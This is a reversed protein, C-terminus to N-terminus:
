LTRSHNIHNATWTRGRITLPSLGVSSYRVLGERTKLHVGMKAKTYGQYSDPNHTLVSRNSFVRRKPSDLATWRVPSPNVWAIDLPYTSAAGTFDTFYAITQIDKGENLPLEIKAATLDSAITICDIAYGDAEIVVDTGVLNDMFPIPIVGGPVSSVSMDVGDLTATIVSWGDNTIVLEHRKGDNIKTRVYQAFSPSGVSYQQIGGEFYRINIGTVDEGLYTDPILRITYGDGSTTTIFTDEDNLAESDAQFCFTLSGQTIQNVPVTDLDFQGVALLVGSDEQCAVQNLVIQSPLLRTRSRVELALEDGENFYAEDSLHVTRGGLTGQGEQTLTAESQDVYSCYSWGVRYYDTIYSGDVWGIDDFTLETTGAIDNVTKFPESAYFLDGSLTDPGVGVLVMPCSPSAQSPVMWPVVAVAQDDSNITLSSPEIFGDVFVGSVERYGVSRPDLIISELLCVALEPDTAANPNFARANWLYLKSGFSEGARVPLTWKHWASQVLEGGQEFFSYVYLTSHPNMWTAFEDHDNEVAGSSVVFLTQTDANAILQSVHKDPAADKKDVEQIYTPVHKTTDFARTNIGEPDVQYRFIKVYPGDEVPIFLSNDMDAPRVDLSTELATTPDVVVNSPTLAPSTTGSHLSFQRNTGILELSNTFPFVWKITVASNTGITVDIPDDDIVDTTTQAFFNFYEKTQSMVVNEGSAFGLRDQYFFIDEIPTGIFSPLPNSDNDGVARDTWDIAEVFFYFGDVPGYAGATDVRRTMKHPMTTPDIEYALGDPLTEVWRGTSEDYRVYYSSSNSEAAEGKVELIDGDYAKYPLDSFKDVEAKILTSNVQDGLTINFDVNQGATEKTIRLSRARSGTPSMFTAKAGGAINANVVQQAAYAFDWSKGTSPYRSAGKGDIDIIVSTKEGDEFSLYAAFATPKALVFSDARGNPTLDDALRVYVTDYGLADNDGYAWEGVALSSLSGEALQTGDELVEEPRAINPDYNIVGDPTGDQNTDEDVGTTLRVYWEDTDTTSQDWTYKEQVLNEGWQSLADTMAPTVSTNVLFTTDLVSVARLFGGAGHSNPASEIYDQAATTDYIVPLDAGLTDLVDITTTPTAAGDTGFIVCYQEDSNKDIKHTITKMREATTDWGSDVLTDPQSVHSTPPRRSLGRAVDPWMNVMEDVQSDLRLGAAQQSVGNYLAQTTKSVRGM